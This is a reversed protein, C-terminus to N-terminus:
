RVLAPTGAHWGALLRALVVARWRVFCSYWCLLAGVGAPQQWLSLPIHIVDSSISMSVAGPQEVEALLVAQGGLVRDDDQAVRAQVVVGVLAVYALLLQQLVRGRSDEADVAVVLAARLGDGAVALEAPM